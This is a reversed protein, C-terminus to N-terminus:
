TDRAIARNYASMVRKVSAKKNGWKLGSWDILDDLFAYFSGRASSESPSRPATKGSCEEWIMVALRALKIKENAKSARQQASEPREGSLARAGRKLAGDTEPLPKVACNEGSVGAWPDSGTLEYLVQRFLYPLAAISGADYSTGSEMAGKVRAPLNDFETWLTHAAQEIARLRRREEEQDILWTLHHSQIARALIEFRETNGEDPFHFQIVKSFDELCFGSPDGSVSALKLSQGSAPKKM